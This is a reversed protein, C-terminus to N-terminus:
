PTNSAKPFIFQQLMQLEKETLLNRKIAYRGVAMLKKRYDYSKKNYEKKHKRYCKLQRSPKM